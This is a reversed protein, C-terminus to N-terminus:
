SLAPFSHVSSYKVLQSGDINRTPVMGLFSLYESRAVLQMVPLWRATSLHATRRLSSARASASRNGARTSPCQATGSSGAPKLGAPASPQSTAPTCWWSTDACAAQTSTADSRCEAHLTQLHVSVLQESGAEMGVRHHFPNDTVFDPDVDSAVVHALLDTGNLM